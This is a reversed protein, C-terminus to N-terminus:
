RHQHHEIALETRLQRHGDWGSAHRPKRERLRAPLIDSRGRCREFRQHYRAHDASLGVLRSPRHHSHQPSARRQSQRGAGREPHRHASCEGCVEVTQQESGVKLSVDVTVNLGARVILGLRVFKEFGQAEAEVTYDTGQPLETLRYNGEPRQRGQLSRRSAPQTSHHQCRRSPAPAMSSRGHITGDASTQAFAPAPVRGHRCFFHCALFMTRRISILRTRITSVAQQPAYM